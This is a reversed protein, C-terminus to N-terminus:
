LHDEPNVSATFVHTRFKVEPNKLNFVAVELEKIRENYIAILAVFITMFIILFWSFLQVKATLGPM